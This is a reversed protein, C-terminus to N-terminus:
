ERFKLPRLLPQKQMTRIHGYASYYIILMKM